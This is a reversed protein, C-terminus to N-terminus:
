NQFQTKVPKVDFGRERLLSIVGNPGGLHGAGVASFTQQKHSIEDIREAMIINRDDIFVKAFDAPYATDNTLELMQELDGALYADVLETFNDATKSSDRIAEVLMSAQKDLPISNIADIQHSFEEIGIREKEAKKALNDFHLDLPMDRDKPMESLALQSSTFFPKMENFKMGMLGLKAEVEKKVLMFDEPSLLDSLLTDTMMIMSVQSLVDVDDMLLEMAYADCSDFVEMVVDDFRFVREDQIHITGYLYSPVELGNGSIEWLLTHNDTSYEISSFENTEIDTSIVDNGTPEDASCSTFWFATLVAIAQLSKKLFRM